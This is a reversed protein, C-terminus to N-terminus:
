ILYSERERSPSFNKKQLKQAYSVCWEALYVGSADNVRSRAM